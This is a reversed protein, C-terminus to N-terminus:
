ISLWTLKEAWKPGKKVLWRLWCRSGRPGLSVLPSGRLHRYKHAVPPFPPQPFFLPAFVEIKFNKFSTHWIQVVFAWHLFFHVNEMFKGAAAAAGDRFLFRFPHLRKVLLCAFLPERFTFHELWIVIELYTCVMNINVCRISNYRYTLNKAAPFEKQYYCSISVSKGYEFCRWVFYRM